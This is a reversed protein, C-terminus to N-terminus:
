AERKKRDSITSLRCFASFLVKVHARVMIYINYLPTHRTAGMKGTISMKLLLLVENTNSSIEGDIASVNGWTFIVLNHKVLELNAHFVQEKLEELM